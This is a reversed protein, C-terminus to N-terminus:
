LSVKSSSHELDTMKYRSVAAIAPACCIPDRFPVGGKGVLCIVMRPLDPDLDKQLSRLGEDSELEGASEM